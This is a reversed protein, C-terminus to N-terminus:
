DSLGGKQMDISFRCIDGRLVSRNFEIPIDAASYAIREALMAASGIPVHLVEAEFANILVPEFFERARVPETGYKETLLTYLSGQSHDDRILDPFLALPLLSTDVALPIGDILRLRVLKAVPTGVEVELAKAASRSASIAKLELVRRDAVMGYKEAATTLSYLNELELLLKQRNAIFSGRGQIRQIYGERQLEGLARKVTIASVGLSKSLENQSPIRDGTSLTGEHLGNQIWAKLGEKVQLFLPRISQQEIQIESEWSSLTTM